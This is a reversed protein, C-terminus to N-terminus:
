FDEISLTLMDGASLGQDIIKDALTNEVTDQIVRRIARAGFEPNYGREVIYSVVGDALELRYGREKLRQRLEDLLLETVMILDEQSLPHYLVVDDFRNLLEPRFSGDAILMDIIEDKHATLDKGSEVLSFIEQAGANSTAIIILNDLNVERGADDTFRGEDIIQLFLDLVRTHAKEFEDLLLVGYPQERVIDALRGSRGSTGRLEDIAGAQSYESMDLRRLQHNQDFYARALTKATETKGVGTPGLFLFSGIPRDQSEVGSRNRKLASSIAQIAEDQGVIREHLKDALNTLRNREDSSIAGTPVGTKKSLYETVLENDVIDDQHTSLIELLLDVAAHPMEDDAILQRGGRIIAQLGSVTVVAEGEYAVAIEGLLALLMDDAVEHVSVVGLKSMVSRGELAEHYEAVGTTILIPLQSHDLFPDLVALLDVGQNAAQRQFSVFDELVLLVNGALTAETLIKELLLKLQGTAAGVTLISSTDLTYLHRDSLPAPVAGRLLRSRVAALIDGTGASPLGVLLANANRPRTLTTLTLEIDDAFVTNAGTTGLFIREGSPQRSFKELTYARGYTFDQTLPLVAELREPAWFRIQHRFHQDTREVWDAAQQIAETSIGHKFAAEVLGPDATILRSIITSLTLPATSELTAFFDVASIGGGAVAGLQSPYLDARLCVRRGFRSRTLGTKTNGTTQISDLLEAAPFSLLDTAKLFSTYDSAPTALRFYLYFSHLAGTISVVLLGLLGVVPLLIEVWGATTYLNLPDVLLWLLGATLALFTAGGLLQRQRSFSIHQGLNLSAKYAAVASETTLTNKSIKM